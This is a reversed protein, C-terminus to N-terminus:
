QICIKFDFIVTHGQGLRDSDRDGLQAGTGIWIDRRIATKDIYSHAYYSNTNGAYCSWLPEECCLIM